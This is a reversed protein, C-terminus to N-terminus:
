QFDKGIRKGAQERIIYWTKCAQETGQEQQQQHIIFYLMFGAIISHMTGKGFSPIGHGTQLRIWRSEKVKLVCARRAWLIRSTLVGAVQETHPRM